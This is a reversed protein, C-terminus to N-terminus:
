LQLSLFTGAVASFANRPVCPWMSSAPLLAWMRLAQDNSSNNKGQTMKNHIPNNHGPRKFMLVKGTRLVFTLLTLGLSKPLDKAQKSGEQHSLCYLIQRCHLLGPEIGPWSSGTSFPIAVWELIRAQLIGHVSSGPPSCDMPDCHTSCSQTVLCKVHSGQDWDKCSLAGQPKQEAICLEPAHHLGWM